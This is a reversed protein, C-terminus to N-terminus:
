AQGLRPSLLAALAQIHQPNDNLAPIYTLTEGGAECFTEAAQIRIEELTELCDAPFGPCIIDVSRLGGEAWEALTPETYPQLWVQKGFRSQYSLAWEDPSLELADALARATAECQAQYPDGLSVNRQPLGHFSMLLRENRGHEAWHQQVSQALASIYGPDTAYDAIWQLAPMARRQRYIQAIRDFVTASTTASFQPYLPLVIIEDCGLASLRDLGQELSPTGYRYATEVPCRLQQRLGDAIRQTYVALPSGEDMWITAYNHAVRRSRLPLILGFLLPRWLLAPIEVVRTDSLFEALYTRVAAATPAQPTGLNVVLVGPNAAM